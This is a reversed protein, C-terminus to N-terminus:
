LTGGEVYSDLFARVVDPLTTGEALAREEALARTTPSVYLWWRVAGGKIKPPRGARRAPRTVTPSV